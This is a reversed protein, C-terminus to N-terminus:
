MGKRGVPMGSGGILTAFNTAEWGQTLHPLGRARGVREEDLVFERPFRVRGGEEEGAEAAEAAVVEGGVMQRVVERASLAAAPMGHGTYGACIWLGGQPGGGGLSEPVAGVWAHHDRSYGMVGTWEFSAELEEEDGQEEVMGMGQQQGEVSYDDPTLAPALDLPPSLNRRLYRAVEVEVEDDRWEGVGLGRAFRRGGGYIMEGTPLPRQVLYDDRPVRLDSDPDPDAAFVYSHTLKVAPLRSPNNPPLVLAGIQGRVPVILDSFAPLLHSTYGNTALLVQRATIKGRPTTLTWGPGSDARALSTVPTNTQLNFAPAPFKAILRELISAVLKYPWLSAAKQQIVAGQASPVHLSALTHKQGTPSSSSSDSPRVVELQAALEPHSQQLQQAEAAALEFMDKSLFAHVGTLSVWDCEVGEERVVRELFEFVELEFAAVAPVSGYVLPQCHGGNRGTAGSCAERAELMVVRRGEGEGVGGFGGEGEGDGEGGRLGEMLFRAAFAGTIGSGVVVVDATEPLDATGRHGRLVPSLDQLWYSETPNRSPLGAPPLTVTGTEASTAKRITM